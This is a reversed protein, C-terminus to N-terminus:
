TRLIDLNPILQQMAPGVSATDTSDIERATPPTPTQTTVAPRHETPNTQVPEDSASTHKAGV